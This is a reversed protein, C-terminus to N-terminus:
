KQTEQVAKTDRTRKTHIEINRSMNGNFFNAEIRISGTLKFEKYYEALESLEKTLTEIEPM